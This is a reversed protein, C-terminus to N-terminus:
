KWVCSANAGSNPLQPKCQNASQIGTKRSRRSARVMGTAAMAAASLATLGAFATGIEPVAVYTYDIEVTGFSSADGGFFLQASPSSYSGSYIGASQQVTLNFTRDGNGIYQAFGSSQVHVSNAVTGSQTAAVVFSNPQITGSGPGAHLSTTTSVGSLGTVTLPVTANADTFYGPINSSPDYVISEVSDNSTLKIMIDTLAGLAPNFMPFSLPANAGIEMTPYAVCVSEVAAKATFAYAVLFASFVAAVVRYKRNVFEFREIIRRDGIVCRCMLHRELAAQM